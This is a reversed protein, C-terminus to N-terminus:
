PLTPVHSPTSGRPAASSRSASPQAEESGGRRDLPQRDTMAARSRSRAPVVPALMGFPEGGFLHHVRHADALSRLYRGSVRRVAPLRGHIVGDHVIGYAVGYLTVGTAVPVLWAFGRVNFGIALAVGVVSAFVVPFLDNAELRGAAPQHHSRHLARGPGHMVWRHVAYTLPEMLVFALASLGVFAPTVV